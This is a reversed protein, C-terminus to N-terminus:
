AQSSLSYHMALFDGLSILEFINLGFAGWYGFLYLASVLLSYLGAASLITNFPPDDM